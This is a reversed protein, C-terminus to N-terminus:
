VGAPERTSQIWWVVLPVHFGIIAAGVSIPAHWLVWAGIGYLGLLKIHIFLLIFGVRQAGFWEGVLRKLVWLNAASWTGGFGVGVAYPLGFIMDTLLALCGVVM